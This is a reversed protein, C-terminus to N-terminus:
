IEELVELMLSTSTGWHSIGAQNRMVLQEATYGAFQMDKWLASYGTDAAITCAQACIGEVPTRYNKVGASNYNTSGPLTYTTNLPNNEANGGEARQWAELFRFTEPRFPILLMQCFREKWHYPLHAM